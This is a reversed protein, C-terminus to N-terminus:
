QQSNAYHAAGCCQSSYRKKGQMAPSNLKLNFFSVSSAEEAMYKRATPINIQQEPSRKAFPTELHVEGVSERTVIIIVYSLRSRSRTYRENSGSESAVQKDKLCLSM